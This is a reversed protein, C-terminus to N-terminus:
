QKEAKDFFDTTFNKRLTELAERANSAFRIRDSDWLWFSAQVVLGGTLVTPIAWNYERVTGFETEKIRDPVLQHVVAGLYGYSLRDAFENFEANLCQNIAGLGVVGNFNSFVLDGKRLVAESRFDFHRQLEFSYVRYIM